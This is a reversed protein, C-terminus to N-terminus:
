NSTIYFKVEELVEQREMEEAIMKLLARSVSISLESGVFKVLDEVSNQSNVGFM